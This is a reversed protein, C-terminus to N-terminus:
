LRNKIARIVPGIVPLYEFFGQTSDWYDQHLLVRGASDFRVHTMGITRVTRGRALGRFRVDMVWRFYYERGSRAVDTFEVTISETHSITELYYARIAEAGRVTKLTDNFFADPAYVTTTDRQLKEATFRSLFDQFRQIAAQEEPGQLDAGPHSLLFDQYASVGNPRPPRSACGALLVAGVFISSFIVVPKIKMEMLFAKVRATTAMRESAAREPQADVFFLHQGLEPDQQGLM